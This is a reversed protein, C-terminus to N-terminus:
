CGIDAKISNAADILSQGQATTLAGSNIFANVQSIFSSLQNCAAGTQGADLKASVQNLKDILGASQNPTLTGAAALAQVEAIISGIPDPQTGFAIFAPNTGVPITAVVTNTSTSIVSVTHDLSNVVYAFVGDPTDAVGLPETGVLVSAVM